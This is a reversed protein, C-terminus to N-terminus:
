SGPYERDLDLDDVSLDDDTDGSTESDNTESNNTESDNTDLNSKDSDATAADDADGRGGVKKVGEGEFEPRIDDLLEAERDYVDEPAPPEPLAEPEAAVHEIGEYGAPARGGGDFWEHFADRFTEQGALSQGGRERFWFLFDTEHDTCLVVEDMPEGYVVEAVNCGEKDAEGHILYCADCPKGIVTQLRLLRKRTDPSMAELSRWEDDDTFLESEDFRWGHLGISVKGM